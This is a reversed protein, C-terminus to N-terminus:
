SRLGIVQYNVRVAHPLSITVLLKGQSFYKGIYLKDLCCIGQESM